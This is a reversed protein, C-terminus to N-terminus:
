PLSNVNQAILLHLEELTQLFERLDAEARARGIGYDGALKETIELETSGQKLFELIRSGMPNLRFMKGNVIDLLTGGDPGHIARVHEPVGFGRKPSMAALERTREMEVSM